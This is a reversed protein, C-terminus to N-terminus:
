KVRWKAETYLFIDRGESGLHLPEMDVMTHIKLPRTDM